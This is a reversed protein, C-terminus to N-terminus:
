RAQMDSSAAAIDRYQSISIAKFRIEQGPSLLSPQTRRPDFLNLPTRGIIPWGGPSDFSYICSQSGIIGISGAAVKQRPQALRGIDPVSSECGIYAFGRMFGLVAVSCFLGEHWGAIEDSSIALAQAVQDRDLAFAPDYCVPIQALEINSPPFVDIERLQEKLHKEAENPLLKLPDFQIAFSDMGVVVERWFNQRRLITGVGHLSQPNDTKCSIWDDCIHFEFPILTMRKHSQRM